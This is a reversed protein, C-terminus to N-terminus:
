KPVLMPTVTRAFLQLMRSLCTASHKQKTTKNKKNKQREGQNENLMQGFVTIRTSSMEANGSM